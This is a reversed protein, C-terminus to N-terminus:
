GEDSLETAKRCSEKFMPQIALSWLDYKGFFARTSWIWYEIVLSGKGQERKNM